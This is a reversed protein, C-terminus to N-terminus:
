NVALTRATYKRLLYPVCNPLYLSKGKSEQLFYLFYRFLVFLLHSTRKRIHSVMDFEMDFESDSDSATPWHCSGLTGVPVRYWRWRAM